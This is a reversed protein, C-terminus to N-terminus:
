PGRPLSPRSFMRWFQNNNEACVHEATAQQVRLPVDTGFAVGNFCAMASATEISRVATTTERLPSSGRTRVMSSPL